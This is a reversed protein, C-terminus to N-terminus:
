GSSPRIGCATRGGPVEHMAGTCFLLNRYALGRMRQGESAQEAPIRHKSVSRTITCHRGRRRLEDCALEDRALVNLLSAADTSFRIWEPSAVSSMPLPNSKCTSM